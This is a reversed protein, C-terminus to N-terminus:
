MTSVGAEIASSMTLAPSPHPVTVLSPALFLVYLLGFWDFIRIVSATGHIAWQRQIVTLHSPLNKLLFTRISLSYM